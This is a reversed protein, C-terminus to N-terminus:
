PSGYTRHRISLEAGSDKLGRLRAKAAEASSNNVNEKPPTKRNAAATKDQVARRGNSSAAGAGPKTQEKEVREERDIFLPDALAVAATCRLDANPALM